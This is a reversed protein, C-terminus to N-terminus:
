RGPWYVYITGFQEPPSVTTSHILMRRGEQGKGLGKRWLHLYIDKVVQLHGNAAAYHLAAM